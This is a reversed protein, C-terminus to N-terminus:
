RTLLAHLAFVAATAAAAFVLSSLWPLGYVLRYRGVIRLFSLVAAATSVALSLAPLLATMTSTGKMDM